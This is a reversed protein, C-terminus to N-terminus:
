RSQLATLLHRLGERAQANNIHHRMEGISHGLAAELQAQDRAAEAQHARDEAQCRRLIERGLLGAVAPWCSKEGNSVEASLEIVTSARKASERQPWSSRARDLHVLIAPKATAALAEKLQAHRDSFAADAIALDYNGGALERFLRQELVTFEPLDADGPWKAAIERAFAPNSSLILVTPRSLPM